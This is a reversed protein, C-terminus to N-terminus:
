GVDGEARSCDGRDWDGGGGKKKMGGEGEEENVLFTFLLIHLTLRRPTNLHRLAAPSHVSLTIQSASPPPPPPPSISSLSHRLPQVSVEGTREDRECFGEGGFAERTYECSLETEQNGVNPPTRASGSM